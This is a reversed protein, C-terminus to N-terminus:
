GRPSPTPSGPEVVYGSPIVPENGGDSFHERHDFIHDGLPQHSTYTDPNPRRRVDADFLEVKLHYILAISLWALLFVLANKATLSPRIPM